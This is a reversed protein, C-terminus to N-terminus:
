FIGYVVTVNIRSSGFSGASIFLTQPATRSFAKTGKSVDEVTVLTNAAVATELMVQTGNAQTGIRVNTAAAGSDEEIIIEQIFASAPLQLTGAATLGKAVATRYPSEM